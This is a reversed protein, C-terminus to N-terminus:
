TEGEGLGLLREVYSAKTRWYRGCELCRIASYASPTKHGGNFASFNCRYQVVRWRAKHNRQCALREARNREAINRYAQDLAYSSM